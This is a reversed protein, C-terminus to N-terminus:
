SVALSSRSPKWRMRFISPPVVKLPGSELGLGIEEPSKDRGGWDLMDGPTLAM